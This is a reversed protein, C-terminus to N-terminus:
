MQFKRCAPQMLEMLADRLSRRIRVTCSNQVQPPATLLSTHSAATTNPLPLPHSKQPTEPFPCREAPPPRHHKAATVAALLKRGASPPIGTGSNCMQLCYRRGAVRSGKFNALPTTPKLTREGRDRHVVIRFEYMTRWGLAPISFRHVRWFTWRPITLSSPSCGLLPFSLYFHVVVM